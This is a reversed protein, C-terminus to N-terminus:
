FYLCFAGELNGRELKSPVAKGEVTYTADAAPASAASAAGAGAAQAAEEEASEPGEEMMPSVGTAAPQDEAGAEAVGNAAAAVVAGTPMAATATAQAGWEGGGVDAWTKVQRCQHSTSRRDISTSWFRFCPRDCFLGCGPM